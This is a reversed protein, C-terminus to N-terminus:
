ASWAAICISFLVITLAGWVFIINEMRVHRVSAFDNEAEPDRDFLFHRRRFILWGVALFVAVAITFAVRLAPLGAAELMAFLPTLGSSASTNM